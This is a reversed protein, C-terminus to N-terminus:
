LVFWVGILSPVTGLALWPSILGKQHIALAAAMALVGFATAIVLLGVRASARESFVAAVVLGASMHMITTAALSALVWRQVRGTSMPERNQPRRSGPTMLHRRVPPGPNSM